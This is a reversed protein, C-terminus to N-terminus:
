QPPQNSSETLRKPDDSSFGLDTLLDRGIKEWSFRQAAYSATEATTKFNLAQEISQWISEANLPDFYVAHDECIERFVEIDSCAVRCDTAMAEILPMGFGELLSPFVYVGANRYSDILEAESISDIFEIEFAREDVLADAMAM